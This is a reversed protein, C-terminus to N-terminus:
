ATNVPDRRVLEGNPVVEVLHIIIIMSNLIYTLFMNKHLTVRQCGLNRSSFTVANVPALFISM